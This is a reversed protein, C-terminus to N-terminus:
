IARQCPQPIFQALWPHGWLWQMWLTILYNFLLCVTCTSPPTLPHTDSDTELYRRAQASFAVESRRPWLQRKAEMWQVHTNDLPVYFLRETMATHVCDACLCTDVNIVVENLRCAAWPYGASSTRLWTSSAHYVLRQCEIFILEEAWIAEKHWTGFRPPCLCVVHSPSSM